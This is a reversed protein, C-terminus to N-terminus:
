PCVHGKHWSECDGVLCSDTHLKEYSDYCSSSPSPRGEGWCFVTQFLSASVTWHLRHTHEACVRKSSCLAWTIVSTVATFGPPHTHSCVVPAGPGAPWGPDAWCVHILIILILPCRLCTPSLWVLRSSTFLSGNVGGFTSLAVAIPMIWAMVGLLKEGFTQSIFWSSFFSLIVRYLDDFVSRSFRPRKKYTKEGSSCCQLGAAGAPEFCHHVGHECVRLRLNCCPHFHLNRTTSEQFPWVSRHHM